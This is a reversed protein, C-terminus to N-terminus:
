LRLRYTLGLVHLDGPRSRADNQRMYYVDATFHRNFRRTLGAAFRNRVWEDVSWDYFVEDSAFVGFQGDKLKAPYDLQFRNRYRTSSLPSRVRREFLNRDSLGLKGAPFRLTAALNLRHENGKRGEGPRTILNLHWAALSLFDAPQKLYEGVRFTFGVGVRRDVLHTVDRGFRLTGFLNFDVKEGLAVAVQLDNWLQTDEEPVPAPAQAPVGPLASAIVFVCLLAGLSSLIRRNRPATIRM